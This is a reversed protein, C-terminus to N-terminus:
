AGDLRAWLTEAMGEACGRLLWAPREGWSMAFRHRRLHLAEDDFRPLPQALLPLHYHVAASYHSAAEFLRGAARDPRVERLAEAGLPAYAQLLPWAASIIEPSRLTPPPSRLSVKDLGAERPALGAAGGELRWAESILLKGDVFPCAPCRALLAKLLTSKGCGRSGLLLLVGQPLRLAAGKMMLLGWDRLLATSLWAQILFLIEFYAQKHDRPQTLRFRLWVGGQDLRLSPAEARTEVTIQFDAGNGGLQFGPLSSATFPSAQFIRLMRACDCRLTLALPGCRFACTNM